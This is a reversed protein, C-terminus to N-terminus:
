AARGACFYFAAFLLGAAVAKASVHTALFLYWSGPVVALGAVTALTEGAGFLRTFKYVLAAVIGAFVACLMSSALVLAVFSIRLGEAGDRHLNALWLAPKLAVYVPVMLFSVGPPLGSRIHGGYQAKDVLDHDGTIIADTYRDLDVNGADVISMALEAMNRSMPDAGTGFNSLNALLIITVTLFVAREHGGWHRTWRVSAPLAPPRVCDTALGTTGLPFKSM